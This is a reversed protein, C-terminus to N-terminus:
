SGEWIWAIGNLTHPGTGTCVRHKPSRMKACETSSDCKLKTGPGCSPYSLLTGVKREKNCCLSSIGSGFSPPNQRRPYPALSSWPASHILLHPCGCHSPHIAAPTAQTLGWSATLIPLHVVLQATAQAAESWACGPPWSPLLEQPCRESDACAQKPTFHRQLM